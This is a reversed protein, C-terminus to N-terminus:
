ASPEEIRNVQLWGLVGLGLLPFSAAALFMVPFGATEGVRGM